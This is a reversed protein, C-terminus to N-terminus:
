LRVFQSTLEIISVPENAIDDFDAWDEILNVDTFRKQSTPNICCWPSNPVFKIPECGRCEFIAIPQFGIKDCDCNKFSNEEIVVFSFTERLHFLKRKRYIVLSMKDQAFNAGIFYIFM